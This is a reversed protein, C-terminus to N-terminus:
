SANEIVNIGESEKHLRHLPNGERGCSDAASAPSGEFYFERCTSFSHCWFRWQLSLFLDLLHFGQKTDARPIAAPCPPEVNRHAKVSFGVWYLTPGLTTSRYSRERVNRRSPADLAM